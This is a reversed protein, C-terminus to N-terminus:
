PTEPGRAFLKVLGRFVQGTLQRAPLLEGDVSWVSEKDGLTTFTFLPTKYHEVFPFNFPDAGRRALCLLQRLYQPRSCERILILHLLGDALHAHAVLGDPAKDNRCSMVAAGVSHFKAQCTKWTPAQMENVDETDSEGNLVHSFDFGSACTTCNALCVVKKSDSPRLKSSKNRTWPGQPIETQPNSGTQPIDLFSIEAEYSQHKMFVMFGAADYRAPGLYRMEESNKMVDGYFGYGAFSAAYRVEPVESSATKDRHKKWGTVRVIDLPMSDGLIIHLASTSPDRAGTTSIVVTDTSGAPIIGIRLNPNSNALITNSKETEIDTSWPSNSKAVPAMADILAPGESGVDTQSTGVDKSEQGLASELRSLSSRKQLLPHQDLPNKPPTNREGLLQKLGGRESSLVNVESYRQQLLTRKKYFSNLRQPMIAAPAKHRHKVLGNVVENFFGDGGVVVVGDLANLEEETIRTMVERAHGARETKIVTTRIKALEFLSSVQKWIQVGSGKGGYPNVFVLLSKPRHSDENLLVQIRQNWDRVVAGSTHGFVYVKPTWKAGSRSFTHVEIRHLQKPTASSFSIPQHVPGLGSTKVAFIEAVPLHGDTDKLTTAGCCLLASACTEDDAFSWLLHTDSLTATVRGVHGLYFTERTSADEVNGRRGGSRLSGSSCPGENLSSTDIPM